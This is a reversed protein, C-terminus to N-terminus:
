RETPPDTRPYKDGPKNKPRSERSQPRKPDYSRVDGTGGPRTWEPHYNYQAHGHKIRWSM